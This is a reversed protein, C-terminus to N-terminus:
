LRFMLHVVEVVILHLIWFFAADIEVKVKFEDRDTIHITINICEKCVYNRAFQSREQKKYM